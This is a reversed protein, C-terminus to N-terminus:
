EEADGWPKISKYKFMHPGSDTPVTEVRIFRMDDITSTYPLPVERDIRRKMFQIPWLGQISLVSDDIESVRALLVFPKLISKLPVHRYAVIWYKGSEVIVTNQRVRELEVLDDAKEIITEYSWDIELGILSMMEEQTMLPKATELEEEIYEDDSLFPNRYDMGACYKNFAHEIVICIDSEECFKVRDEKVKEQIQRAVENGLWYRLFVRHNTLGAFASALKWDPYLKLAFLLRKLKYAATLAAGSDIREQPIEIDEYEM